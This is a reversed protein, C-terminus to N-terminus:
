AKHWMTSIHSKQQGTLQHPMAIASRLRKLHEQEHFSDKWPQDLYRRSIHTFPTVPFRPETVGVKEGGGSSPTFRM